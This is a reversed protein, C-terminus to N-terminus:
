NTKTTTTTTTTSTTTSTTTTSSTCGQLVCGGVAGNSNGTAVLAIGGIVVGGGVIWILRSGGAFSLAQKVGAPSGAPLAGQNSQEAAVAGSSLLLVSAFFAAGFKGTM